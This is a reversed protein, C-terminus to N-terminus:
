PGGEPTAVPEDNAALVDLIAELRAQAEGYATWDGQSLSEQGRDFTAIAEDVLQAETLGDLDTTSVEAAPEAPEAVEEEADLAILPDDATAVVGGEPVRLLGVAEELSPAMVVQNNAAVIVRALRPAAATSETAQIYMPQVYLMADDIPIVLLNGQIVESGGQNWLTIQESISPEQSIQAEIQRPGYVTVQRPFRYLRLDTDGDIGATGAMWATMNQRAQQGAPTFPVTLAFVTETENPLQQTVFFPEMPRLEDDISEEAVAWVDEGDYFSRATEVHYESWVQSQVTFQMEPYRFHSSVADPVDSVDRFLNPYIRGYADAIPDEMATRYFITEGTYADVTVKVSNRLYNSGGYRKASPFNDSMTYADVVWVLRGDAIVLYPDPDYTLFPAIRDVREIVPRWLLLESESTLRGSLFVNRDGLSLAALARTVPNGIGVGGFAEGQFGTVTDEETEALGSFEGQDTKVIVWDVDVEGFYIEPRAIALEDPGEPPIQRVLFEPWGDGTVESAPSVVLAYGHTYALHRNTWTQANEPLGDVNLERAGVLVQTPVGDIEYRDVDIDNFEYYPVFTQLQEYIPQVVRYDWIRVNRLPPEDLSLDAPDIPDQGTLEQVEVTDLGFAARTMEINREIYPQERQFENPNVITRQVLEPLTPTILVALVFWGGIVGILYKPTRLVRGSLVLIGAVASALAMLYNLPRVVNVDTFGPGIVVGRQSFVLEFNRLWYGLALLLLVAAVLGSLHRLAAWPVDGWSRFRVGLRVAYVVAVAATTVAVLWVLGSQLGNLAPLTFIYFGADRNFTPDQVGFSRGSVALMIHEWNRAAVTGAVILIALSAGVILGRLIRRSWRSVAGAQGSEERTNRLALSVNTFFILAALGGFVVFSLIGAGYRRVLVSRYGMSDFWLWNIWFSATSLALVFIGVFVLTAILMRKTSPSLGVSPLRRTQGQAPTDGQQRNFFRGAM